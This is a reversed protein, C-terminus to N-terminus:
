GRSEQVPRDDKMDQWRLHDRVAKQRQAVEEPTLSCLDDDSRRPPQDRSKREAEAVEDPTMEDRDHPDM